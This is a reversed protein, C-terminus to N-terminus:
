HFRWFLITSKNLLWGNQELSRIINDSHLLYLNTLKSRCETLFNKTLFAHVNKHSNVGLTIQYRCWELREREREHYITCIYLLDPKNLTFCWLEVVLSYWNKKRRHQRATKRVLKSTRLKWITDNGFSRMLLTMLFQITQTKGGAFASCLVCFKPPLESASSSIKYTYSCIYM